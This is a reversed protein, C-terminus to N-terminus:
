TRVPLGYLVNATCFKWRRGWVEYITFGQAGM